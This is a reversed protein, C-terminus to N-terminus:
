VYQAETIVVDWFEIQLSPSTARWFYPRVPQKSWM